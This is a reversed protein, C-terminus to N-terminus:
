EKNFIIEKSDANCECAVKANHYYVFLEELTIKSYDMIVGGRIYM